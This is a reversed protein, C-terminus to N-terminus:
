GFHRPQTRAALLLRIEGTTPEIPRTYRQGDRSNYNSVSHDTLLSRRILPAV